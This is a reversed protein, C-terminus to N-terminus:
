TRVLHLADACDSLVALHDAATHLGAGMTSISVHTAGIGLALTIMAVATFGPANRLARIGYRVDRWLDALLHGSVHEGAVPGARAGASTAPRETATLADALADGALEDRLIRLADEESHGRARLDTYRDELHQALEEAIDSERRPSLHLPALRAHVDPRWDPV